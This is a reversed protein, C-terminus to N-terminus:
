ESVTFINIKNDLVTTVLCRRSKPILSQMQMMIINLIAKTTASSCHYITVIEVFWLYIICIFLCRHPEIYTLVCESLVLSPLSYDVGCFTLSSDLKTLDTLDCGVISYSSSKLIGEATDVPSMLKVLEETSLIIDIKSSVVSPFDVQPPVNQKHHSTWTVWKDERCLM